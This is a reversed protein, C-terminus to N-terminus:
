VCLSAVRSNNNNIFISFIYEIRQYSIRASCPPLAFSKVVIRDTHAHILGIRM